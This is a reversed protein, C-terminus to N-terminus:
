DSTTKRSLFLAADQKVETTFFYTKDSIVHIYLLQWYKKHRHKKIIERISLVVSYGVLRNFYMYYQAYVHVQRHMHYNYTHQALTMTSLKHRHICMYMYM